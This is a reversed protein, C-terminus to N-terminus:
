TSSNKNWYIWNLGLAVIAEVNIESGKDGENSIIQQLKSIESNLRNMEKQKTIFNEAMPKEITENVLAIKYSDMFVKVLM